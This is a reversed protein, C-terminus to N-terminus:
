LTPASALLIIGDTGDGALGGVALYNAAVNWNPVLPVALRNARDFTPLNQIRPTSTTWDVGSNFTGHIAATPDGNVTSVWGVESTAFVIDNIASVTGSLTVTTWTNGQDLSYFLGGSADGFWWNFDDQVALATFNNASPASTITAFTDGRNLTVIAVGSDGAAIIIEDLGHIRNLDTTTADGADKVSVGTIVNTGKYIYGGDGCLWFLSASQVFIDQPAKASVFGTTVKTWTTSPVGTITSIESYFYGGAGGDDFVVVLYRGVIDIATPVDTFASGTILSQTWTAGSDNSYFVSPAEGASGGTNNAVAYILSTGNDSPGCKGCQVRSGYVIDIVESFVNTSAKEGFSMKGINYVKDWTYSLDDQLQEDSDWASGAEEVETVAGNSMIKIYASWGNVFDSLDKCDGAVQYITADCDALTTLHEPLADRRQLFQVTSTPFDPADISAGVQQYRGIQRPDHVNIPNIGGRIPNTVSEVNLFAGDIGSYKLANNPASGGPQIFFRLHKQTLIREKSPKPM